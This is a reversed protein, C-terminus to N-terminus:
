KEERFLRRNRRQEALVPSHEFDAPIVGGAQRFEAAADLGAEEAALYLEAIALLFDRYDLRAGQLGAATLGLRLWEVDRSARLQDCAIYVFGLLHNLLGDYQEVANSLRYVRPPSAQFFRCLRVYFDLDDEAPTFIVLPSHPAVQGRRHVEALLAELEADTPFVHM